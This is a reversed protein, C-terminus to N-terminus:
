GEFVGTAEDTESLTTQVGGSDSDSYVDIVIQDIITNDLDEDPDTVRIVANGSTSVNSETWEISAYNWQIIASALAVSGDDYEFTVTVGDDQGATRLTGNEPGGTATSNSGNCWTVGADLGGSPNNNITQEDLGQLTIYGTFIGTDEGSEKLTYTSSCLAGSRTSIKVPLAATGITEKGASNKNHDPAVVEINVDDTWDYVTKDLTITAGFNSIAIIAEVDASDANVSSEGALGTDRYTLTIVEGLELANANGADSVGTPIDVTTQFVGTSDGTEELNSPNRTFQGSNLLESSDADSDWEILGISVTEATASDLDLDPDTITIVMTQGMVYVSKDTTISGNRLDFTSSDYVSTALGNDGNPDAYTVQIVTQGGLVQHTTSGDTMTMTEDLTITIEYVNSGQEIETLPGYECGAVADNCLAANTTTGVVTGGATGITGTTGSTIL